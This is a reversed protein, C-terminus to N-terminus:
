GENAPTIVPAGNSTVDFELPAVNTSDAFEYATVSIIANPFKVKMGDKFTITFDEEAERGNKFAKSAILDNGADGVNRKGSVSITVGKSTLLARRWGGEGYPIWEEIGNDISISFSEMDAITLNESGVSFQGEYCPFVGTSAM